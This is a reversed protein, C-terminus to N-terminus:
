GPGYQSCLLDTCTCDTMPYLTGHSRVCSVFVHVIMLRSLVYLYLGMSCVSNSETTHLCHCAPCMVCLLSRILYSWWQHHGLFWSMLCTRQFLVLIYDSGLITLLGGAWLVWQPLSQLVPSPSIVVM